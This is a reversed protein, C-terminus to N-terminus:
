AGEGPSQIDTVTVKGSDEFFFGLLGECIINGVATDAMGPMQQLSGAQSDLCNGLVAANPIHVVKGLNKFADSSHRGPLVPFGVAPLGQKDPGGEYTPIGPIETM